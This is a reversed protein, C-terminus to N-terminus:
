AIRLRSKRSRIGAIRESLLTHIVDFEAPSQPRSAQVAEISGRLILDVTEVARGTQEAFVMDLRAMQHETDSLLAERTHWLQHVTAAITGILFLAALVQLSRSVPLSKAPTGKGNGRDALMDM